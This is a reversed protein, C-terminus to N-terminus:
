PREGTTTTPPTQSLEDGDVSVFARLREVDDDVLPFALSAAVRRAHASTPRMIQLSPLPQVGLARLLGNAQRLGRAADGRALAGILTAIRRHRPHEERLELEVAARVVAHTHDVQAPARGGAGAPRQPACLSLAYTLRAVRADDVHGRVYADTDHLPVSAGGAPRQIAIGALLDLPRLISARPSSSAGSWRARARDVVVDSIALRAAPGAASAALRAELGGKRVVAYAIAAPLPPVPPLGGHDRVRALLLEVRGIANLWDELTADGAAVSLVASDVTSVLEAMGGSKYGRARRLWNAASGTLDVASGVRARLGGAPVGLYSRGNRKAIVVRDFREIGRETGLATVARAVGETSRAQRAGDQLRGEALFRRVAPESAGQRWIPLWVEGRLDVDAFTTLGDGAHAVGGAGLAFSFSPREDGLHRLVGSAFMLTGEFALVFAWPNILSDEGTSTASSNALGATGPAFLGVAARELRAGTADIVADLWATSRMREKGVLRTDTGTCAALHAIWNGSFDLRGDNGGSGLLPNAAPNGDTLAWAADLWALAADPYEARLRELLESKRAEDVGEVCGLEILLRRAMTITERLAAFRREATTAFEDLAPVKTTRFYGSGGNWPSTIPSPSWADLLFAVVDARDLATELVAYERPDWRLRAGRDAQSAARLFGLAALYALLPRTTCGRLAIEPV